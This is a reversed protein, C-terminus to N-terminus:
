DVEAFSLKLNEDNPKAISSNLLWEKQLENLESKEEPSITTAIYLNTLLKIRELKYENM